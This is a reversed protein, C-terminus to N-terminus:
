RSEPSRCQGAWIVAQLIFANNFFRITGVASDASKIIQGTSLSVKVLKPGISGYNGTCAVYLNGANDATISGPNSGVTIKGTETLSGLDIISVTSDFIGNINFGGTNSVYLKDGSITMQAPNAVVEIDKVISLTATDIVAVKGDNCSVFIKNGSAAINEPERNQGSVIFNITDIFKASVSNMVAVYGSVNM